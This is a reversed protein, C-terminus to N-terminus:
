GNLFKKESLFSISWGYPVPRWDPVAGLFVPPRRPSQSHATSEYTEDRCPGSDIVPSRIGSGALRSYTPLMTPSSDDTSSDSWSIYHTICLFSSIWTHAAAPRGTLLLQRGYKVRLATARTARAACYSAALPGDCLYAVM